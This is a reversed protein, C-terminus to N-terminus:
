NIRVNNDQEIQNLLDVHQETQPLIRYVKFNEFTVKEDTALVVAITFLINLFLRM